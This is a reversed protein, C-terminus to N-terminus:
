VSLEKFSLLKDRYYEYQKRRAAIEAPLGFNLDNVLADFKDLILATRRQLDLSPLCVRIRSFDTKNIIPMTGGSREGQIRIEERMSALTHFLFNVDIKSDVIISNIQQNTVCANTNIVTKGMDAGICTVLISRAPILNKVLLEAGSDSLKRAPTSVQKMGNKIDSPTIFDTSDGWAAVDSSRPTRGTVIRGLEKLTLWDGGVSAEMLLKQRFYEYQQKRAELEAELEAELQTFNDLIEVVARQIEIPPVPIRLKGVDKAYVHPVGGGSKLSYLEEQQSTLWHYCYRSNIFDSDPKISFADSVFIPGKWWSVYGAYAGSGAVVITEGDRNYEGHFYAATRGGAVVPIDGEITRKKTISTGRRLEAITELQVYNVGEPCLQDILRDVKSM